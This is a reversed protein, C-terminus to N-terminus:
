LLVGFTNSVMDIFIPLYLLVIGFFLFLVVIIAALMLIDVDRGGYVRGARYIKDEPIYYKINEGDLESVIKKLTGGNRLALRFLFNKKINLEDFSKAFAPHNAEAAILAKVFKGIFFKNYGVVLVAAIMGLLLGQVVFHLDMSM